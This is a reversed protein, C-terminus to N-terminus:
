RKKSTPESVVECRMWIKNDFDDKETFVLLERGAWQTEDDGIADGIIDLNPNGPRLNWLYTNSRFLVKVAVLKNGPKFTDDQTRAALIKCPQKQPTLMEVNFFDLGSNRRKRNSTQNNATGRPIVDNELPPNGWSTQYQQTLKTEVESCYGYFKGCHACVARGM